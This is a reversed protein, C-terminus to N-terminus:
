SEEKKLFELLKVLDEAIESRMKKLEDPHVGISNPGMAVSCMGQIKLAATRASPIKALSRAASLFSDFNGQAIFREAEVIATNKDEYVGNLVEKADMPEFKGGQQCILKTNHKAYQIVDLLLFETPKKANKCDECPCLIFEKEELGKFAQKVEKLHAQIDLLRIKKGQGAIRISIERTIQNEIVEAMTGEEWRLVVGDRWVYDQYIHPSMKAIFQTVIGSPMFEYKYRYQILGESPFGTYYKSEPALLQPAIYTNNMGHVRYCIGFQEMIALLNREHGRYREGSWIESLRDETFHGQQRQIFDKDLAKYVASTFWENNLIILDELWKINPFHLVIGLRHFTSLLTEMQSQDKVGNQECIEKFKSKKIHDDSIERLAKRVKVWNAPLERGLVDLKCFETQIRSILNRFREDNQAFDVDIPERILNKFPDFIRNDLSITRQTGERANFVTLIPCSEGTRLTVANLWYIFTSAVTEKDEKRNSSLLVYLTDETLFLQHTTYYLEQGGFDWIHAIMDKEEGKGKVRGKFPYEEILIGETRKDAENPVRHDPNRLKRVLTTKGAEGAGVIVIKAEYLYDIGQASSASLFDMLQKRGGLIIEFGPKKFPISQDIVICNRMIGHDVEKIEMGKELLPLLSRVDSIKTKRLDLLLLNPMELKPLRTINTEQLDLIQLDKFGALIDVSRDDIKTRKVDLRTLKKFGGIPQLSSVETQNIVLQQLNSAIWIQPLDKVRTNYAQLVELNSLNAISDLSRVYTHHCLLHRLQEMRNLASLDEVSTNSIDLEEISTLGALNTLDKLGWRGETGGALVLRKLKPFSSGFWSPISNIKNATGSVISREAIWRNNRHNDKDEHWTQFESSFILVELNRLEKIEEPIAVLGLNGLDLRALNNKKYHKIVEALTTRM